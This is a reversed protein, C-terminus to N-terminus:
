KRPREQNNKARFFTFLYLYEVDIYHTNFRAADTIEGQDNLCVINFGGDNISCEKGNIQISARTKGNSYLRVMKGNVECVMPDKDTESILEQLIAGKHLHMVIGETDKVKLLKSNRDKFFALTADSMKAFLEHKSAIFIHEDKHAEIYESLNRADPAKMVFHSDKMFVDLMNPTVYFTDVNDKEFTDQNCYLRLHSFAPLANVKRGVECASNDLGFVVKDGFKLKHIGRELKSLLLYENKKNENSVSDALMQPYDFNWTYFGVYEDIPPNDNWALAAKHFGGAVSHIWIGPITLLIFSILIFYNKLFRHLVLVLMVFLPILADVFLRPGFSWGGWWNAQRALMFTHVLFLILCLIYLSNKRIDRVLLGVLPILLAPTFLFLGRAPSVLIAALREYFPQEPPMMHIWFLPHYYAPVILHFHSLSYWGFPLYLALMSLSYYLAQKKNVYYLWIAMIGLLPLASPRCFWAFYLFIGLKYGKVNGLHDKNRIIHYFALLLFIMEFNFSWLALAVASIISTSVCFFFALLLAVNFPLYEKGIMLLGIFILAVCGSAILCQWLADDKKQLMDYGLVRAIGVIPIALVSTGIPYFYYVKNEEKRLSYKWTGDSFEEPKVSNYYSYLNTTGQELIAQSTLLSLQPDSSTYKVTTFFSILFLSLAGTLTFLIKSWNKEM